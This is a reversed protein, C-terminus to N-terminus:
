SVSYTAFVMKGASTQIMSTVTALVSEGIRDAAGEVGGMTGDELYAVGQGPERGEKVITVQLEEGHLHIPKLAAALENVNMCPVGHLGAVKSLNFDNTVLAGGMEKAVHVLQIDVEDTDDIDLDHEHLVAVRDGFEKQMKNLMVLGRRGRRRRIPDGSDAIGQLEGLVVSPVYLMGELFGAQAVAAVRGDIIVSTDLVKPPATAGPPDVPINPKPPALPTTQGPAPNPRSFAKSLEDRLGIAFLLGFAAFFGIVGVFLLPRFPSPEANMASVALPVTVVAGTLAGVCLGLAGTAREVPSAQWIRKLLGLVLVWLMKAALVGTMIGIACMAYVFFERLSADLMQLLIDTSTLVRGLQHGALGGASAAMVFYPVLIGRFVRPSVGLRTSPSESM